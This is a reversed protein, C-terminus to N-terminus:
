VYNKNLKYRLTRLAKGAIVMAHGRCLAENYQDPPYVFRKLVELWVKDKLGEPVKKWNMYTIPVHERVLCSCQNSFIGIVTELELPEGHPGIKYIAHMKNHVKHRGHQGRKLDSKKGSTTKTSTSPTPGSAQGEEEEQPYELCM